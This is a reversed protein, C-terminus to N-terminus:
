SAIVGHFFTIIALVCHNPSFGSRCSAGCRLGETAYAFSTTILTALHAIRCRSMGIGGYEALVGVIVPIRCRTRTALSGQGLYRVAIGKCLLALRRTVSGFNKQTKAFASLTGGLFSRRCGTMGIFSLPACVCSVMPVLCRASVVYEGLVVGLMSPVFSHYGLFGRTFLGTFFGIGTLIARLGFLFLNCFFVVYIRGVESVIDILVPM